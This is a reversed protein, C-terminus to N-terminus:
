SRRSSVAGPQAVGRQYDRRRSIRRRRADDGGRARARAAHTRIARPSAVVRRCCRARHRFPRREAAHQRCGPERSVGADAARAGMRQRERRAVEREGRVRDCVSRRRRRVDDPLRCGDGRQRRCGRRRCPRGTGAGTAGAQSALPHETAVIGRTSVVVSRGQSRNIAIKSM